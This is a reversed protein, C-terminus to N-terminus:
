KEQGVEEIGSERTGAQEIKKDKQGKVPKVLGNAIEPILPVFAITAPKGARTYSGAKKTGDSAANSSTNTDSEIVKDSFEVQTAIIECNYGAKIMRKEVDTSDKIVNMSGGSPKTTESM